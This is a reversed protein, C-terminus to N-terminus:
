QIHRTVHSTHRTVHSTHRTVYSTHHTVHQTHTHTHIHTHKTRRPFRLQFRHAGNAFKDSLYALAIDSRADDANNSSPLGNSKFTIPITGDGDLLPLASRVIEAFWPSGTISRGLGARAAMAMINDFMCM